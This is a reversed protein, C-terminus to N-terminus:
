GSRGINARPLGAGHGGLADDGAEVDRAPADDLADAEDLQAVRAVRHGDGLGVFGLAGVLQGEEVDGRGAVVAVGQDVDDAGHGPLHEHGQGDAASDARRAVDAAHELGAGVLDGEVGGGDEVGFEDVFGGALEAGLADHQGDVGAAIGVAPGAPHDVSM